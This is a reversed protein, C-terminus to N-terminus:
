SFSGFNVVLPKDGKAFSLMNITNGDIKVVPADPAQKGVKLKEGLMFKDKLKFAAM